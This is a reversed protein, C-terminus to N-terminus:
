LEEDDRRWGEELEAMLDPDSEVISDFPVLLTNRRVARALKSGGQPSEIPTLEM